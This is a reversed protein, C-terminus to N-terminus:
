PRAREPAAVCPCNPHHVLVGPRHGGPRAWVWQHGDHAVTFLTDGPVETQTLVIKAVATDRKVGMEHAKSAEAKIDRSIALGAWGALGILLVMIIVAITESTAWGARSSLPCSVTTNM